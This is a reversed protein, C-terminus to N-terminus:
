YLFILNQEVSLFFQSHDGINFLHSTQITIIFILAINRQDSNHIFYVLCVKFISALESIPFYDDYQVYIQQFIRSFVDIEIICITVYLYSHKIFLAHIWSFVDVGCWESRQLNHLFGRSLQTSGLSCLFCISQISFFFVLLM